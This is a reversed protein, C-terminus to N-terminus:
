SLRSPSCNVIHLNYDRSRLPIGGDLTQGPTGARGRPRNAGAAAKQRV